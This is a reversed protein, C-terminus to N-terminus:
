SPIPSPAVPSQPPATLGLLGTLVVLLRRRDGGWGRLFCGEEAPKGYTRPFM